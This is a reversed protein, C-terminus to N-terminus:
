TVGNVAKVSSYLRLYGVQSHIRSVIYLMTYVWAPAPAIGRGRSSSRDRAFNNGRDNGVCTGCIRGLAWFHLRDMRVQLRMQAKNLRMLAACCTLM